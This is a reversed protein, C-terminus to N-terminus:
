THPSAGKNYFVYPRAEDRGKHMRRLGNERHFNRRLSRDKETSTAYGGLEHTRRLNSKEKHM